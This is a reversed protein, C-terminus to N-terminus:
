SKLDHGSADPSIALIPALGLIVVGFEIPLYDPFIVM